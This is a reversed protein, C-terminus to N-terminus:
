WWCSNMWRLGEGEAILDVGAMEDGGKIKLGRVGAATRGMLRCVKAEKFRISQGKATVLMVDDTGTSMKVWLLSDGDKLNIAILGSRRVNSFANIDM